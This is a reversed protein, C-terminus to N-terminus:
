WRCARCRWTGAHGHRVKRAGRARAPVGRAPGRAQGRDEAAAALARDRAHCCRRSALNDSHRHRAALSDQRDARGRAPVARHLRKIESKRSGPLVLLLPTGRMGGARKRRTRGCNTSRSSWRIASMPAPRGASSGTRRRSSRCCRWCMTSIAGCPARADRGGRGSRPRCMTSSRFRHSEARRVRRAVRHTFDPSDIIVM